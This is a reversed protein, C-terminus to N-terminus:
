PRQALAYMSQVSEVTSPRQFGKAPQRSPVELRAKHLVVDSTAVKFRGVVLLSGDEVALTTLLVLQVLGQAELVVGRSQPVEAIGGGKAM